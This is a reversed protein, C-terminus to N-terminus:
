EKINLYFNINKYKIFLSKIGSSRLRLRLTTDSVTGLRENEQFEPLERLYSLSSWNNALAM